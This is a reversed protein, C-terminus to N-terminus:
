SVLLTGFFADLLGRLMGSVTRAGKRRDRAECGTGEKRWICWTKEGTERAGTAESIDLFWLFIAQGQDKDRPRGRGGAEEQEEDEEDAVVEYFCEGSCM